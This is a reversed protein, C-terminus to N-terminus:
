WGIPEKNWGKLYDNTLNFHDTNAFSSNGRCMSNVSLGSPHSSKIVKHKTLDIFQEKDMAPSGWLLFVLNDCKESIYKILENTLYQWRKLHSAPFNYQVTLSTNLLLCGQKGWHKLDGNDPTETIVGYKLQNKYINSLSSPIKIKKPVSFSLGCAQPVVKEKILEYQHYPDQGIIVVKIKDLPTLKLANFVLDPYPFIKVDLKEKLCRSLFKNILEMQQKIDEREFFEKYSPDYFASDLTVITDPFKEGWSLYNPM